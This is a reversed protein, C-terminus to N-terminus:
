ALSPSVNMTAYPDGAMADLGCAVMILAPKFKAVEPLVWRLFTYCYAADGEGTPMPFNLNAGVGGNAGVAKPSGHAPGPWIGEENLNVHLVQM